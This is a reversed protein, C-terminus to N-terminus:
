RMAVAQLDLVGAPVPTEFNVLDGPPTQRNGCM